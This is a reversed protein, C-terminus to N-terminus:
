DFNGIVYTSLMPPAPCKEHMFIGIGLWLLDVFWDVFWVVKECTKMQYVLIYVWILFAFLEEIPM